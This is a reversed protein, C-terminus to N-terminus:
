RGECEQQVFFLLCRRTSGNSAISGLQRSHGVYISTSKGFVINPFSIHTPQCAQDSVDHVDEREFTAIQTEAAPLQIM